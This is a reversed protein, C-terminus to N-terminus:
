ANRIRRSRNGRPRFSSASIPRTSLIRATAKKAATLVNNLTLSYRFLQDPHVPLLAHVMESSSGHVDIRVEGGRPWSSFRIPAASGSRPWWASATTQQLHSGRMGGTGHSVAGLSIEEAAHRRAPRIYIGRNGTSCTRLTAGGGLAIVATALVDRTGEAIENRFELASAQCQRQREGIWTKTAGWDSM